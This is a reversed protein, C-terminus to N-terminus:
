LGIEIRIQALSCPGKEFIHPRNEGNLITESLAVVREAATEANWQTTITEYAALGMRKQEEPHDLLHKIKEYLMDVNGSEYILGNEGNKMLFPVSGIAHSAIVACGSNMSENLVAGWGENRDSTFLYIGAKEMHARVEEPKMSGLFRVCDRLGLDEAMQRLMPEMEGRGIFNLRFSCGEDRLRKAAVLVDDPHKWDLFRGCWLIETTDKEAMLADMDAYRKTEPFYGWKYTRNLFLGFKAYDGATYASACLMCIPKYMPNRWHWLVLRPLYKWLELGKKLPREAYRFMLKGTKVRQRVLKEPASGTIVVDAEQILRLVLEENGQYRLVYPKQEVHYGLQKRGQPMETTQVFYYNGGTQEWLADSLASQHHNFFNSLFVITLNRSM